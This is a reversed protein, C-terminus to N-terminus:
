TITGLIPAEISEAKGIQIIVCGGRVPDGKRSTVPWWRRDDIGVSEAVADFGRKCRAAINDWDIPRRDPPHYTITVPVDGDWAMPRIKQAICGIACEAKYERGARAKGLYDKQSGNPSSKAPPWPLKVTQM